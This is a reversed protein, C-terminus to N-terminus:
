CRRRTSASGAPRCRLQKWGDLQQSSASAQQAGGAAAPLPDHRIIYLCGASRRRAHRRSGLRGPPSGDERTRATTCSSAPRTIRTRHAIGCILVGGTAEIAFSRPARICVEGSCALITFRLKQPSGVAKMTRANHAAPSSEHESVRSRLEFKAPRCRARPPAPRRPDTSPAIGSGSKAAAVGDGDGAM